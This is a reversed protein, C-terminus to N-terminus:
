LLHPFIGDDPVIVEDTQRDSYKLPSASDIYLAVNFLNWM